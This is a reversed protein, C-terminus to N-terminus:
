SSLPALVWRGQQQVLQQNCGLEVPTSNCGGLARVVRQGQARLQAVATDLNEDSDAPAYVTSVQPADLGNVLVKLDASFGTAPRARGFVEGIRNYRGGKAVAESLGNSYVAFICGTHYRYGRLEGLDVHIHLNPHLAQVREIVAKVQALSQLADESVNALLPEAKEIAEKGTLWPLAKLAEAATPEITLGALFDTLETSAKRMYIDTLAFEQDESLGAAAVLARYIGVHGLDLTTETMCAANLTALMLSVVEVDSDVGDHGFLEVGVQYPARTGGPVAPRTRLATSCYCLRVPGERRLSHADMRAVQPTIDARVGMLRGTLRDTVKYTERELDQGAGNLLSELFEILPPFVLEYGWSSYLDLLRRRLQEVAGAKSPLIEDVGEPLLWREDRNMLTV